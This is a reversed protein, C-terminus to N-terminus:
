PIHTIQTAPITWLTLGEWEKWQPIIMGTPRDNDWHTTFTAPEGAMDKGNWPLVTPNGVALM